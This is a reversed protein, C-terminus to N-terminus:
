RGFLDKGSEATPTVLNGLMDNRANHAACQVEMHLVHASRLVLRFRSRGIYSLECRKETTATLSRASVSGGRRM